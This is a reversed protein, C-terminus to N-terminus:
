DCVLFYGCYMVLWKLMAPIFSLCFGLPLRSLLVGISCLGIKANLWFCCALSSFVAVRAFWLDLWSLFTCCILSCIAAVLLSVQM